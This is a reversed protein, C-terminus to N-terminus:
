FLNEHEVSKSFIEEVSFNIETYANVRENGISIKGVGSGPFIASVEKGFRQQTLVFKNGTKQCFHQYLEYLHLKSIKSGPSSEVYDTLFELTPNAHMRMEDLARESVISRTFHGQERLRALGAIAWLLIGSAEDQEVWWDPNDMRRVIAEPDPSYNFPIPVMRRWLGSSRDRFNPARNWSLMLKATPVLTLPDRNKRDFQMADGGSFQKLEAEAVRDVEGVDNCINLSKGITTGLDFQGSFKELAVHGVNEKGLMAEMAAFFVTKGNGGEGQFVMFKQLYNTSTLLYGAWEQLIDIREKDNEMASSIFRLWLPCDAEPDFPYSLRFTSFWEPTHDLLFDDDGAFVAGLDLIGNTASVYHPQTRDPLWCAMPISFPISCMSEMAGVVNSVLAKTVKKVPKDEGTQKRERWGREFEQRVAAWVKSRLENIAIKRYRGDKWKLWEDCWYVLRGNHDEQYADLNVRALRQPDDESEHIWKEAAQVADEGFKESGKAIDLLQEFAGQNALYDRLDQGHNKSQEFPLKVNRVESAHKALSPCWGPRQTGGAEGVWTAGDQGPDDADHVVYVDHGEMEKLIWDSPIEQAGNATTFAEADPSVSLLALLDTPGETKWIM